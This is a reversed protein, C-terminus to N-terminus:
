NIERSRQSFTQYIETVAHLSLSFRTATSEIAQEASQGQNIIAQIEFYILKNRITQISSSIAGQRLGLIEVFQKSVDVIRDDLKLISDSAMALYDVVWQPYPLSTGTKRQWNSCFDIAHWVWIPNNTETYEDEFSTLIIHQSNDQEAM